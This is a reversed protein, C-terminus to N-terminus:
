HLLPLGQEYCLTEEQVWGLNHTVFSELALLYANCPIKAESIGTLLWARELALGLGSCPFPVM